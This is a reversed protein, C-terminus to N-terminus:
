DGINEFVQLLLRRLLVQEELTLNAFSMDELRQWVNEVPQQLAQGEATLYVRSVRRDEADDQRQVLGASALRDVMRTVTAPQNCLEEALESHTCGDGRWLQLLLMEQGTHLGVESLLEQAKTRHAKCIQVLLYGLTEAIAKQTM